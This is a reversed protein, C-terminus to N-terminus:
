IKGYHKTFCFKNWTRWDVLCQWEPPSRCVTGNQKYAYCSGSPVNSFIDAPIFSYFNDVIHDFCTRKM